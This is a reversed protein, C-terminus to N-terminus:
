MCLSTNLRTVPLAMNSLLLAFFLLLTNSLQLNDRM